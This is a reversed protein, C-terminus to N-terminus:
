GPKKTFMLILIANRFLAKIVSQMAAERSEPVLAIWM